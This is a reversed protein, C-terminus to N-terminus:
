RTPWIRWRTTPRASPMPTSPTPRPSTPARPSSARMSRASSRPATLVLLDNNGKLDSGHEAFRAGRYRAEDLGYDQIMTGMAGDLVLIREEAAATLAAIREDRTM